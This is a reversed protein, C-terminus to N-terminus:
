TSKRSAILYKEVIPKIRSLLEPDQTRSKRMLEDTRQLREVLSNVLASVWSPVKKLEAQLDERPIRFAVVNTLALAEASRAHGSFVGLEGLYEGAHIIALPVIENNSTNKFIGVEGKIIVFACDSEDYERILYDGQNFEYQNQM